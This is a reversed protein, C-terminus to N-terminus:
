NEFVNQFYQHIIIEFRKSLSFWGYLNGKVPILFLPVIMKSGYRSRCHLYISKAMKERLTPVKTGLVRKHTLNYIETLSSLARSQFRYKATGLWRAKESGKFGIVLNVGCNREVNGSSEM